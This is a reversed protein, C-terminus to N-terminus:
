NSRGHMDENKDLIEKLENPIGNKIQYECDGNVCKPTVDYKFIGFPCFPLYRGDPYLAKYGGCSKYLIDNRTNFYKTFLEVNINFKKEEYIVKYVRKLYDTVEKINQEFGVLREFIISKPNVESVMILFKEPDNKILDNDLTSMVKYKIGNSLLRLCNLKWKNFINENKFRSFNFSTDILGTSKKLLDIKKNSIDCLLNSSITFNYNYKIIINIINEFFDDDILLPEGGFLYMTNSRCDLKNKLLDELGILFCNKDEKYPFNKLFCHNCTSNCKFSPIIMIERCDSM